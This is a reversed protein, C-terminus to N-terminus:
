WVFLLGVLWRTTQDRGCVGDELLPHLGFFALAASHSFHGNRMGCFVCEWFSMTDIDWFWFLRFCCLVLLLVCRPMWLTDFIIIKKKLVFRSVFEFAGCKSSHCLCRRCFDTPPVSLKHGVFNAAYGGNVFHHCLPVNHTLLCCCLLLSLYRVASVCNWPSYLTLINGTTRTFPTPTCDVEDISYTDYITAICCRVADFHLDGDCIRTCDVNAGRWRNLDCEVFLILIVVLAM